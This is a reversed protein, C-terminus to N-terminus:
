HRSRDILGGVVLGVSGVALTWFFWHGAILGVILGAVVGALAGWGAVASRDHPANNNQSNKQTDM